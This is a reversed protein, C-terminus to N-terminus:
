YFHSIKFLFLVLLQSDLHIFNIRNFKLERKHRFSHKEISTKFRM